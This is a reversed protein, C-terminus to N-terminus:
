QNLCSLLFFCISQNNGDTSSTYIHITYICAHMWIITDRNDNMYQSSCHMSAYSSSPYIHMYAVIPMFYHRRWAEIQFISQASMWHSHSLDSLSLLLLCSTFKFRAPFCKFHFLQFLLHCLLVYWQTRHRHCLKNKTKITDRLKYWEM